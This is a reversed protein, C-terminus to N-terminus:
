LQSAGTGPPRAEAVTPVLVSIAAISPESVVAMRHIPIMAKGRISLRPYELVRAVPQMWAPAARPKRMGGLMM